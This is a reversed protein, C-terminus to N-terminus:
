VFPNGKKEDGISTTIGHGPYVVTNEPLTMLKALSRQIEAPNGSYFDTRGISRYFLTDGTFITQDGYMCIGGATHGPTEIFRYETDGLTLTDGEKVYWDATLSIPETAFQRSGNNEVDLLLAKEAEGAVVKAQPYDRQLQKIASIHDGHGHTLVIYKLNDLTALQKKMDSPYCGPDVVLGTNSEEDVLVYTNEQLMNQNYFFIKIM